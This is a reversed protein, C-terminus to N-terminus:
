TSCARWRAVSTCMRLQTQMSIGNAGARPTVAPVMRAVHAQLGNDHTPVSGISSAQHHSGCGPADRCPRSSHRERAMGAAVSNEQWTVPEQLFLVQHTQSAHCRPPLDMKVWTCRRTHAYAETHAKSVKYTNTHPTFQNGLQRCLNDQSKQRKQSM